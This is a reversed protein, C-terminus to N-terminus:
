FTLMDDLCLHHQQFGQGAVSMRIEEDACYESEEWAAQRKARGYADPDPAIPVRREDVWAYRDQRWQAPICHRSEPMREAWQQESSRVLTGAELDPRYALFGNRRYIEIKM